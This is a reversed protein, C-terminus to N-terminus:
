LVKSLIISKMNSYYDNEFTVDNSNIKLRANEWNTNINIGNTGNTNQIYLNGGIITESSFDNTGQHSDYYYDFGINIINACKNIKFLPIFSM